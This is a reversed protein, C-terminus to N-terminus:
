GRSSLKFCLRMGAQWCQEDLLETALRLYALATEYALAQKAQLARRVNLEALEVQRSIHRASEATRNLHHM